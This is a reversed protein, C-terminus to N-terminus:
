GTVEPICEVGQHNGYTFILPEGEESPVVWGFSIAQYFYQGTENQWDDIDLSSFTESVPVDFWAEVKCLPFPEKSFDIGVVNIKVADIDSQDPFIDESDFIGAPVFWAKVFPEMLKIVQNLNKESDEAWLTKAQSFEPPLNIDDVDDDVDFWEMNGYFRVTKYKQKM